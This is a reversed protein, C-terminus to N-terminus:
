DLNPILALRVREEIRERVIERVMRLPSKKEEKCLYRLKLKEEEALGLMDILPTRSSEDKSLSVTSPQGLEAAKEHTKENELDAYAGFRNELVRDM